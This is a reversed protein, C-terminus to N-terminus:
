HNNCFPGACYREGRGDEVCLEKRRHAVAKRAILHKVIQM